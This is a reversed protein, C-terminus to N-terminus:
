RASGELRGVSRQRTQSSLRRFPHILCCAGFVATSYWYHLLHLGVAKLAFGLGRHRLFFGYLGRNLVLLAALAMVVPVIFVYHFAVIPLLLVLLWTLAGSIRDAIKLNLDRMVTGNELVLKSWPAARHFIETRIHSRFTWRKLHKVCLMKDLVIRYGHATMRYGLEIDEISSTPYRGADFEGVDFFVQRQVAGCGAWFTTAQIEATQHVYHHQLNKYQSLFNPEAPHDDYSGFV